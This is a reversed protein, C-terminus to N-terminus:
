RKITLMSNKKVMLRNDEQGNCPDSFVDGMGALGRIWTGRLVTVDLAQKIALELCGIKSYGMVV